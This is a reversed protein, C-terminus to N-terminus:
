MQQHYPRSYGDYRKLLEVSFLLSQYPAIILFSLLSMYMPVPTVILLQM